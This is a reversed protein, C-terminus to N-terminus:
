WAFCLNHDNTLLAENLPELSYECGIDQPLFVFFLYFLYGQLGWNERYLIPHENCLSQTEREKHSM